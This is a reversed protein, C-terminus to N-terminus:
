AQGMLVLRKVLYVVLGAVAVTILIAVLVLLRIAMKTGIKKTPYANSFVLKNSRKIPKLYTGYRDPYCIGVSNCSFKKPPELMVFFYYPNNYRYSPITMRDFSAHIHGEKEDYLLFLPVTNPVSYSYTIFNTVDGVPANVVDYVDIVNSTDFPHVNRYRISFMNMGKPIQNFVDKFVYFDTIKHWGDEWFISGRDIGVYSLLTDRKQFLSLKLINPYEKTKVATKSPKSM